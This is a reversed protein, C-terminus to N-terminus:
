DHNGTPMNHAFAICTTHMNKRGRSLLEAVKSRQDDIVADDCALSSLPVQMRCWQPACADMLLHRPLLHRTSSSLQDVFTEVIAQFAAPTYPAVNWKVSSKCADLRYLTASIAKDFVTREDGLYRPRKHHRRTNNDHDDNSDNTSDDDDDDDRDGKCALAPPRSPVLIDEGSFTHVNSRVLHSSPITSAGELAVVFATGMESCVLLKARMLVSIWPHYAYLSFVHTYPGLMTSAEDFDASIPVISSDFSLEYSHRADFHVYAPMPDQNTTRTTVAKV